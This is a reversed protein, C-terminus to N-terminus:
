RQPDRRRAANSPPHEPAARKGLKSTHTFPRKRAVQFTDPFELHVRIDFLESYSLLHNTRRDLWEILALLAGVAIALVFIVMAGRLMWPEFM